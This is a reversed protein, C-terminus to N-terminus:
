PRKPARGLEVGAELGFSYPRQQNLFSQTPNLNLSLIGMEAVPGLSLTWQHGAPRYQMGGGGRVGGSLHRYPSSASLPTYTRAAEPNNEVESRVNLLATVFAGLRGYFSFGTKAPNAYSMEVPVNLSRYRYSTHQLRTPVPTYVAAQTYSLDAVQEGVFAVSSASSATNQAVELGTRLRWRSAGLRRSAWLSLRQGLGAHLNNRYEAAASRTIIPSNLGLLTNYSEPAKSFDINPQYASAAYALGYQWHRALELPPGAAVAVEALSAPLAAPAPATLSAWRTELSGEALPVASAALAYTPAAAIPLTNTASDNGLALASAASTTSALAPQNGLAVNGLTSTAALATTTGMATTKITASTITAQSQLRANAKAFAPSNTAVLSAPKPTQHLGSHRLGVRRLGAAVARQGTPTTHQQAAFAAGAHASALLTATQDIASSNTTSAVLRTNAATQGSAAAPPTASALTAPATARRVTALSPQDALHPAATALTSAPAGAQQSHWWGGGALSALLLSAAMAWRYAALRRRYKENQALLLSNDVQEWVQPRPAVAAAESELLHHRFLDELSGKPPTSPNM